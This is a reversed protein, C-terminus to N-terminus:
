RCDADRGMGSEEAMPSRPQPNVCDVLDIDQRPFVTRLDLLYSEAEPRGRVPFVARSFREHLRDLDGDRPVLRIGWSPLQCRQPLPQAPRPLPVSEVHSYEASCLQPALREARARLNDLPTDLLSLLPVTFPARELDRSLELTAALAASAMGHARHAMALPQQRVRTVLESEGCLLAGPPGGLFGDTRVLVLNAGDILAQKVTTTERGDTPLEDILPNRGLDVLLPLKAERAVKALAPIDPRKVQGIVLYDAPEIRAFLAPKLQLTHIYDDVKTADISGVELLSTGAAAAIEPLRCEPAIQGVEGRGIVVSQGAALARLTLEVAALHSHWYAAAAAGTLQCALREAENPGISDTSFDQAVRMAREIAPEALPVEFWPEGWLQGTANIASRTDRAHPGLVYRAAREALEAIPIDGTRSQVEERIEVLFSRVRAAVASRNLREVVGRLPPKDLIENVSPLKPLWNPSQM